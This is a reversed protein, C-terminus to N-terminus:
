SSADVDVVISGITAVGDVDNLLDIFGGNASFPADIAQALNKLM